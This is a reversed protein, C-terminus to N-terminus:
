SFSLCRSSSMGAHNMPWRKLLAVHEKSFPPPLRPVKSKGSCLEFSKENEELQSLGLPTSRGCFDTHCGAVFSPASGLPAVVPRQPPDLLVSSSSPGSCYGHVAPFSAAPVQHIQRHPPPPPPPCAAAPDALDVSLLTTGRGDAVLPSSQPRLSIDVAYTSVAHRGGDGIGYPVDVVLRLQLRLLFQRCFLWCVM